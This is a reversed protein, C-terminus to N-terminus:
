NAEMKLFARAFRKKVNIFCITLLIISTAGEILYIVYADVYLLSLLFHIFLIVIPYGVALVTNLSSLKVKSPSKDLMDWEIGFINMTVVLIMGILLTMIFTIFSISNTFLLVGLTIILSSVSLVMPILIKAIIQKHLSVPIYKVIQISKGERSMSLTASSNIVSMFLLILSINIGNILEPYYILFFELNKYIIGNLSSIVVFSLIPMMILLATYSFTYSSDKFLIMMEKRVLSTFPSHIKVKKEYVHNSKIDIEHVNFYHFVISVIFFGFLLIVLILGISIMVNSAINSNNIFAMMINYVPLLFKAMEHLFDIFELSFMGGISSDNLASLFLNLAFQYIFCLVIVIVSALVFQVLDSTKILRFIYEYIVVLILSVGVTFLSIIFPYFISFIFYYPFVDRVIGYCVLMPTSILLSTFVEKIYLYIVKSFILTENSLPLPMTIRTDEKNFIIKRARVVTSLVGIIMAVFLFLVLFDFTGYSSYKQIKNDLSSFVFSVLAVIIGYFILKLFAKLLRAYISSTKKARRNIMEKRVLEIVM